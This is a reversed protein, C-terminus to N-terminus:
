RGKMRAVCSLVKKVVITEEDDLSRMPPTDSAELCVSCNHCSHSRRSEGFYELIFRRLCINSYDYDIMKRWKRREFVDRREIAGFDIPLQHSPMRQLIRQGRGRFPARYAIQGSSHLSQLARRTQDIAFGLDRSLDTLDSSFTQDKELGEVEILYKLIERAQNMRDAFGARLETPDSLLTIAAEHQGEMGREILGARELIKLASSVSMEGANASTIREALARNTMEIEDGGADCLAQYVQEILDRSPNSNEIFFEQTYTDAFDFLLL